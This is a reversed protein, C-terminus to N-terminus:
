TDPRSAIFLGVLILTVGQLALALPPLGLWLGLGFSGAMSVIAVWKVRRSIAGREAWDRLPGGWTPHTMLWHHLRESSRSFCFAALILFPVTPLIPLAAGILGLGTSILGAILWLPRRM